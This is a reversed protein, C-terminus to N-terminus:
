INFKSSPKAKTRCAQCQWTTKSNNPMRKLGLCSLHFFTGNECATGHCEVLRDTPAAKTNCICISSYLMAAQNLAAPQKGKTSRKSPCYWSKLTPVESLFLCAIHIKGYPCEVNSCSVVPESIPGRCFCIGNDNRVSAHVDCRRTFWRVLIEPLICIRWFEELKPLVTKSHELDPCIRETVLHANEHCDIACVLFDNFKREPLNFLQHQVQFYYNHKSKLMFTGNVKELCSSKKQVFKDFDGDSISILCKVEGCGLGCCDCSTLFDPTAHLFPYHKNIFLGCRTVQLNNVRSKKMQTEYAKVAYEEYKCDHKIGKSNVKYLHPYLIQDWRRTPWCTPWRM